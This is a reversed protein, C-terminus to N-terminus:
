TSFAISSHRVHERNIKKKKATKLCYVRLVRAARKM